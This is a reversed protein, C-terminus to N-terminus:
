QTRTTKLSASVLLGRGQPHSSSYLRFTPMCTCPMRADLQGSLIQGEKNPCFNLEDM